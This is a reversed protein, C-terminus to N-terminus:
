RSESSLLSNRNIWAAANVVDRRESECTFSPIQSFKIDLYNICSIHVRSNKSKGIKLLSKLGKLIINYVHFNILKKLIFAVHFVALFLKLITM